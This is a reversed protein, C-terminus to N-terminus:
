KDKTDKTDKYVSLVRLFGQPAASLVALMKSMPASLVGLFQAKLIEIPPLKGLAKIDEASLSSKDLFGIKIKLFELKDSYNSLIKAVASPNDYSFIIANSGKLYSHLHKEVEPFNKLSKKILTNRCVKVIALNDVTLEKRIKTIEPVTLGQFDVLFGAKAKQMNDTLYQIHKQKTQRTIM